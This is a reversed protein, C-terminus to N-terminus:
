AAEEMVALRLRRTENTLAAQLDEVHDALQQCAGAFGKVEATLWDFEERTVMTAQKKAHELLLKQAELLDTVQKEMNDFLTDYMKQSRIRLKYDSWLMYAFMDCGALSVANMFGPNLPTQALTALKDRVNTSILTKIPGNTSRLLPFILILTLLGAIALFALRVLHRAM